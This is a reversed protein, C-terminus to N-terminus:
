KPLDFSGEGTLAGVVGAATGPQGGGVGIRYAGARESRQGNIAAPTPSSTQPQHSTRFMSTYPGRSGSRASGSTHSIM